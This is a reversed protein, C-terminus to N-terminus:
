DHRAAAGRLCRLHEGKADELFAELEVAHLRRGRGRHADEHEINEEADGIHAHQSTITALRRVFHIALAAVYPASQAAAANTSTGSAQASDVESLVGVSTNATGGRQIGPAM